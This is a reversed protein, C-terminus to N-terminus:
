LWFELHDVLRDIAELVAGRPDAAAQLVATVDETMNEPLSPCMRAAQELLRKEGPHLLRNQAFLIDFYSALLGAVRHNVSVLDKRQIAKAVQSRYSSIMERLVALNSAIVAQRLEEPYPQRSWEQLRALWGSRDFLPMANRITFWHATTYGLSPQHQNIVRELLSEVWATDWYVADVGIGSPRHIWEDCLGWYAHNLNARSAGGLAEVLAARAESAIPGTTFVCLDVDSGADPAIGSVRSGALALAEVQPFQQYHDVLSRILTVDISETM